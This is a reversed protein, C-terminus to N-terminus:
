WTAGFASRLEDIQAASLTAPQPKTMLWLKATEELEELTEVNYDNQLDEFNDYETYECCIAIPDFEIEEGM